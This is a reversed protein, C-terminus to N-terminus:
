EDWNLGPKELYDLSIMGLYKTGGPLTAYMCQGAAVGREIGAVDTVRHVNTSCRTCFRIQDNDTPTLQKWKWSCQYVLVRVRGQLDVDEFEPIPTPTDSTNTM